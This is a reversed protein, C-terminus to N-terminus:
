KRTFWDFAVANGAGPAATFQVTFRKSEKTIAAVVDAGVSPTGSSGTFQLSVQYDTGGQDISLDITASPLLGEVVLSGSLQRPELAIARYLQWIYEQLGEVTTAGRPPTPINNAAAM